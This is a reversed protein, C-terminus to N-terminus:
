EVSSSERKGTSGKGESVHEPTKAEPKAEGKEAKEATEKEKKRHELEPDVETRSDTVYFGPGKFVLFPPCYVRRGEMGCDPCSNGGTENFKRTVEFNTKCNPCEYEYVPM